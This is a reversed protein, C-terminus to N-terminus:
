TAEVVVHTSVDLNLNSSVTHPTNAKPRPKPRRLQFDNRFQHRVSGTEPDVLWNMQLRNPVIIRGPRRYTRFVIDWLPSTVGHNFRADSFHHSFHHRRAWRGYATKPAQMHNSWHIFEYVLYGLFVGGAFFSGTYMGLLLMGGVWLGVAILGSYAIKQPLTSFYDKKSHHALHEKSFLTKGKM